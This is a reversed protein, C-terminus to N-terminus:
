DWLPPTPISGVDLPKAAKADVVISQRNTEM